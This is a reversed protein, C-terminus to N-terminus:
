ARRSLRAKLAKLTELKKTLYRLVLQLDVRRWFELIAKMAPLFGEKLLWVLVVTRGVKATLVWIAAALVLLGILGFLSINKWERSQFM